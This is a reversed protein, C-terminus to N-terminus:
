RIPRITDATASEAQLRYGQSVTSARIRVHAENTRKLWETNARGNASVPANSAERMVGTPQRCTTHIMRAM